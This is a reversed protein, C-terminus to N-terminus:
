RSNSYLMSSLRLVDTSSYDPPGGVAKLQEEFTLREWDDSGGTYTIIPLPPLDTYTHGSLLLSSFTSAADSMFEMATRAIWLGIIIKPCVVLGGVMAIDLPSVHVEGSAYNAENAIDDIGLIPDINNAIYDAIYEFALPVLIIQGGTIFGDVIKIILSGENDGFYVIKQAWGPLSKFIKGAGLYAIVKFRSPLLRLGYKLVEEGSEVWIASVSSLSTNESVNYGWGNYAGILLAEFMVSEEIFPSRAAYEISAKSSAVLVKCYSTNCKIKELIIETVLAKAIVTAIGAWPNYIITYLVCASALDRASLSKYAYDVIALGKEVGTKLYSSSQEFSILSANDSLDAGDMLTYLYYSSNGLVFRSYNDVATVSNRISYFPYYTNLMFDKESVGINQFAIPVNM